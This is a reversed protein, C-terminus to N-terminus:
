EDFAPAEPKALDIEDGIGFTVRLTDTTWVGGARTAETHVKAEGKPGRVTFDFRADGGDNVMNVQGNALFDATIPEGLREIVTPDQQVRQLATQYPESSKIVNMGTMFLGGCCGAPCICLVAVMSPVFWMWNRSWWGRPPPEPTFTQPETSM